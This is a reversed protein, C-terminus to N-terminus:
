WSLLMPFASEGPIRISSAVTVTAITRISRLAFSSLLQLPKSQPKRAAGDSGSEQHQASGDSQYRDQLTPFIQLETGLSRKASGGTTQEYQAARSNYDPQEGIHSGHPDSKGRYASLQRPQGGGCRVKEFRCRRGDKDLDYGYGENQDAGPRPGDVRAAESEAFDRNRSSRNIGIGSRCFGSQPPPTSPTSRM